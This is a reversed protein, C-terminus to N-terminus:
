RNHNSDDSNIKGQRYQTPTCGYVQKLLRTFYGADPFGVCYSIEQVSESSSLLANVAHRLRVTMLYRHPTTGTEERYKATLYSPSVELDQAIRSINLEEAYKQELYYRTSQVLSSYKRNNLERIRKCYERIVREHEQDIEDITKANRIIDSSAGSVQDNVIPSLGAEMAVIRITTRNIAAAVQANTLTTGIRKMVPPAPPLFPEDFDANRLNDPIADIGCNHLICRM